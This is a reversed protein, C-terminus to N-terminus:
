LGKKDEELWEWKRIEPAITFLFASVLAFAVARLTLTDTLGGVIFLISLLYFLYNKLFGILKATM